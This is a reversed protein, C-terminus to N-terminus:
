EAASADAADRVDPSVVAGRALKRLADRNETACERGVDIMQDGRTEYLTGTGDFDKPAVGPLLVVTEGAVLWRKSSLERLKLAFRFAHSPFNALVEDPKLAISFRGADDAAVAYAVPKDTTLRDGAELEAGVAVGTLWPEVTEGGRAECVRLVTHSRVELEVRDIVTGTDGDNRLNIFITPQTDNTYRDRGREDPEAHTPGNRVDLTARLDAPMRPRETSSPEDDGERFVLGVLPLGIAVVAAIAGVKAWRVQERHRREASKERDRRGM